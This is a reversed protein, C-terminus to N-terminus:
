QDDKKCKGKCLCHDEVCNCEHPKPIKMFDFEMHYKKLWAEHEAAKLKKLYRQFDEHERIDGYYIHGLSDLIGKEDIEKMVKDNIELEDCSVVSHDIDANWNNSFDLCGGYAAHRCLDTAENRNKALVIIDDTITRTEEVEIRFLKM